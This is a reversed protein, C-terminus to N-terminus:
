SQVYKVDKELTEITQKSCIIVQQTVTVFFIPIFSVDSKVMLKKFLIPTLIQPWILGNTGLAGKRKKRQHEWSNSFLHMPFFHAM